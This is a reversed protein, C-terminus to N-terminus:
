KELSLSGRFIYVWLCLVINTGEGDFGANLKARKVRGRVRVSKVEEGAEKAEIGGLADRTFFRKFV